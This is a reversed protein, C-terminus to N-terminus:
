NLSTAKMIFKEPKLLLVLRRKRMIDTEYDRLLVSYSQCDAKIRSIMVDVKSGALYHKYTRGITGSDTGDINISKFNQHTYYEDFLIAFLDIARDSHAIFACANIRELERPEIKTLSRDKLYEILGYSISLNELDM